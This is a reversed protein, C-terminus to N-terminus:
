NVEKILLAVVRGDETALSELQRFGRNKHFSMSEPNPPNTNVECCLLFVDCLKAKNEVAEYIAAGIGIRRAETLTAVQDIYIFPKATKRKFTQFEEGDYPADDDFALAYGVILSNASEVVLHHNPLAMLRALESEDLTAVGPLGQVNIRLVAEFDSVSLSRISQM